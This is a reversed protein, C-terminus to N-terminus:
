DNLVTPVHPGILAIARSGELLEQMPMPARAADAAGSGEEIVPLPNKRPRSFIPLDRWDTVGAPAEADYHKGRWKVWCHGPLDDDESNDETYTPVAGDGLKAAVFEAAEDCNGSNIEAPTLGEQKGFLQFLARPTSPNKMWKPPKVPPAGEATFQERLRIADEADLDDADVGEWYKKASSRAIAYAAGTGEPDGVQFAFRKRGSATREAIGPVRGETINPAKFNLAVISPAPDDMRYDSEDGDILPWSGGFLDIHPQDRGARGKLGGSRLAALLEQWSTRHAISAPRDPDAPAFAAAIRVGNDLAERCLDANAGSYSFTLDLHRRVRQYDEDRWFPVKTYDYFAVGSDVAAEEILEPCVVYWPIDSLMNLRVVFDDGDRRAAKAKSHTEKLLAAVFLEPESLFAWTHKLKARPAEDTSANQGSYVLCTERCAKSSGVCFDLMNALISERKERLFSDAPLDYTKDETWVRKNKTKQVRFTGKKLWEIVTDKSSGDFSNFIDKDFAVLKGDRELLELINPYYHPALSLGRIVGVNGSPRAKATKTNGELLSVIKYQQKFDSIDKTSYSQVLGWEIRGIGSRLAASKPTNDVNTERRRVARADHGGPSGDPRKLQRGTPVPNTQPAEHFPQVDGTDPHYLVTDPSIRM